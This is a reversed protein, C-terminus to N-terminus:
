RVGCVWIGGSCVAAITSTGTPDSPDPCTPATGSCNSSGCYWSGAYCYAGNSCNSPPPQIACSDLGGPSDCVWSNGVCIAVQTGECIPMESGSCYETGRKYCAMGQLGDCTWCSCTSLDTPDTCSGEIPRSTGCQCDYNPGVNGTPCDDFALCRVAQFDAFNVVCFCAILVALVSLRRFVRAADSSNM